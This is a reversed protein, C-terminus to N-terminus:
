GEECGAKEEGKLKKQYNAEAKDEEDKIYLSLCLSNKLNTQATGMKNIIKEQILLQFM